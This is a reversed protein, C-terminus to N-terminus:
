AAKRRRRRLPELAALVAWAEIGLLGCGIPRPPPPATTITLTAKSDAPVSTDEFSHMGIVRATTNTLAVGHNPAAGTLWDKVLDTVDCYVFGLDEIPAWVDFAPGIAPRNNWNMTSESWPALVEHCRIEGADTTSAGFGTFFFAYDLRLEASVVTNAAVQQLTFKLYTEFVHPISNEDVGNFAYNTPHAGRLLAPIFSYPSVDEGEPGPQVKLEAAGAPVAALGLACVCAALWSRM